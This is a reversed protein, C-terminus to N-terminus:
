FNKLDKCAWVPYRFNEKFIIDIAGTYMLNNANLIKTMCSQNQTGGKEKVGLSPYSYPNKCNNKM